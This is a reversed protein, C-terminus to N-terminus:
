GLDEACEWGCAAYGAIDVMTDRKLETMNRAIKLLILLEGVEAATIGEGDKLKHHLRINWMDAINKFNQTPPGYTKNRDGTILKEAERLVEARPPVQEPM